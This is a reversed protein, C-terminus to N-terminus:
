KIGSGRNPEMSESHLSLRHHSWFFITSLVFYNYKLQMKCASKLCFTFIKNRKSSKLIVIRNRHKDNFKSDYLPLLTCFTHLYHPNWNNTCYLISDWTVWPWSNRRRVKGFDSVDFLGSPDFLDQSRLNFVDSCAQLFTRINKLCLFQM